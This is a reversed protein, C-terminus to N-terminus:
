GTTNEYTGNADVMREKSEADGVSSIYLLGELADLLHERKERSSPRADAMACLRYLLEPRLYAMSQRLLLLDASDGGVRELCDPDGLVRLIAEAGSCANREYVEANPQGCIEPLHELLFSEM